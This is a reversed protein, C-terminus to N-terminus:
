AAGIGPSPEEVVVLLLLGKDDPPGVEAVELDTVGDPLGFNGEVFLGDLDEVGVDRAVNFEALGAAGGALVAVGVLVLDAGRAEVGVALGETAAGLVVLLDDVGVRRDDLGERAFPTDAGGRDEDANFARGVCTFFGTCDRPLEGDTFDLVQSDECIGPNESSAGGFKFVDKDSLGTEAELVRDPAGFELDDERSTALLSPFDFLCDPM